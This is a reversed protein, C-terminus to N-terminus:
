PANTRERSPTIASTANQMASGRDEWAKRGGEWQLDIHVDPMFVMGGYLFIRTNFKVDTRDYLGGVTAKMMLLDDILLQARTCTGTALVEGEGKGSIKIAHWDDEPTGTLELSVLALLTEGDYLRLLGCMAYTLPPKSPEPQTAAPSIAPSKPITLGMLGGVLLTSNFKRRTTQM